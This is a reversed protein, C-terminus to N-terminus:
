GFQDSYEPGLYGSGIGNTTWDIAVSFDDLFDIINTQPLAAKRTVFASM